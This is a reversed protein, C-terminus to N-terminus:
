PRRRARGLVGGAGREASDEGPYHGAVTRFALGEIMPALSRPGVYTGFGHRIEVIGMARLAKLAERVSNRSAGLYDMLLPETRLPAGSPLRRDIILKKIREQLHWSLWRRTGAPLEVRGRATSGVAPRAASGTRFRSTYMMQVTLMRM